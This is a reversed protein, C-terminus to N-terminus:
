PGTPRRSESGNEGATGAPPTKRLRTQGAGTKEFISLLGHPHTGGPRDDVRRGPRGTRRAQAAPRAAAAPRLRARGGGDVRGPCVRAPCGPAAGRRPVRHAPGVLDRDPRLQRLQHLGHGPDHGPHGSLHRRGAGADGAGSQDRVTEPEFRQPGAGPVRQSQHCALSLVHGGPVPAASLRHRAALTRRRPHHSPSRRQRGDGADARVLGAHHKAADPPVRVEPARHRGAHHGARSFEGAPRRRQAAPLAFEPLDPGPHLLGAGGGLLVERHGSQVRPNAPHLDARQGAPPFRLRVNGQVIGLPIGLHAALNEVVLAPGTRHNGPLPDDRGPELRRLRGGGPLHRAARRRRGVGAFDPDAAQLRNGQRDANAAGHGARRGPPGPGPGPPDIRALARPLVARDTRGRRVAAFVPRFQGRFQFLLRHFLGSAHLGTEPDAGPQVRQQRRNARGRHLDHDHRDARVRAPDAPARPGPRQYVPPRRAGPRGSLEM